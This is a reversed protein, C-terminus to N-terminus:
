HLWSIGTWGVIEVAPRPCWQILEGSKTPAWLEPVKHAVQLLILFALCASDFYRLAQCVRRIYKVWIVVLQGADGNQLAVWPAHDGWVTAQVKWVEQQLLFWHKWWTLCSNWGAFGKTKGRSIATIDSKTASTHFSNEKWGYLHSSLCQDKCVKGPERLMRNNRAQYFKRCWTCHCSFSTWHPPQVLLM